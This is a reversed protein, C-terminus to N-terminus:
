LNLAFGRVTSGDSVAHALGISRLIEMGPPEASKWHYAVDSLWANMIEALYDHFVRKSAFAPDYETAVRSTALTALEEGLRRGEARFIRITSLDALIAYRIGGAAQQLYEELRRRSERDADEVASVEVVAVANDMKDLVLIDSVSGQAVM